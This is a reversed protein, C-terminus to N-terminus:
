LLGLRSKVHWRGEKSAMTRSNASYKLKMSDKAQTETTYLDMCKSVVKTLPTTDIALTDNSVSTDNSVCTDNSLTM